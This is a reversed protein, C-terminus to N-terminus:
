EYKDIRSPRWERQTGARFLNADMPIVNTNLQLSNSHSIHLTDAKSKRHLRMNVFRLLDRRYRSKRVFLLKKSMSYHFPRLKYLPLSLRIVIIFIASVMLPHLQVNDLLYNLIQGNPHDSALLQHFLENVSSIVAM